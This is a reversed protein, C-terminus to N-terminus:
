DVLRRFFLGFEIDNRNGRGIQANIPVVDTNAGHRQLVEALLDRTELVGIPPLLELHILSHDLVFAGVDEGVADVVQQAVALLLEHVHKGARM